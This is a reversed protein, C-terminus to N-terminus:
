SLMILKILLNGFLLTILFSILFAPVFPIGIKIKVKKIKNKVKNLKKLDSITLGINRKKVYVKGNLKVDNVLWDGETLKRIPVYVNMIKDEVKKIYILSSLSIIILIGLFSIVPPLLYPLLICIALIIPLLLKEKTSFKLKRINKIALFLMAIIGYFAGVILTNFLFNISFPIIEKPFSSAIIAIGVIVKVDGGGWQGGKYMLYSFGGLVGIAIPVWLLINFDWDLMFWLVRIFIAAAILIYSAYDPVERTKMDERSAITLFIVATIISLIEFLM